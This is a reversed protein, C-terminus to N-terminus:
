ASRLTAALQRLSDCPVALNHAQAERKIEEISKLGPLYRNKDTGGGMYVVCYRYQQGNRGSIATVYELEILQRLYTRVQYDSWKTYERIERRTM